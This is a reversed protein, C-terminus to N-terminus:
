VQVDGLIELMKDYVLDTFSGLLEGQSDFMGTGHLELSVKKAAERGHPITSWSPVKDNLIAAFEDKHTQVARDYPTDTIKGRVAKQPKVKPEEKPEAKPEEKPEAKPEEKPEAKPEEKPEAKAAKKPEAKALKKPEAKPEEGAFATLIDLLL